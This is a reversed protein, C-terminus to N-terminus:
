VYAELPLPRYNDTTAIDDLNDKLIVELPLARYNDSTAIDDLNDKVIAELPLQGTITMPLLTM